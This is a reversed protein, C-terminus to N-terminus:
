FSWRKLPKGGELEKGEKDTSHAKNIMNNNNINTHFDSQYSSSTHEYTNDIDDMHYRRRQSPATALCGVLKAAMQKLLTLKM